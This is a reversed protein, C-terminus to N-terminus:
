HVLFWKVDSKIELHVHDHHARNFHPTLTVHFLREDAAECVISMLERGKRGLVRRAGPGCTKAGIAAPWEPLVTLFAGNRKRLAGVDIAMGGPHRGLGGGPETIPSDNPRYITFHVLEVVDHNELIGCFDDLALALRADLIEFPTTAREEKPLSSHITVGHLPGVLRMPTRVGPVDMKVLEYPLRRRVVEALAQEATLNAYGYARSKEATAPPPVELHPDAAEARNTLSAVLAAAGLIRPANM